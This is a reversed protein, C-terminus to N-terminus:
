RLIFNPKHKMIEDFSYRKIPDINTLNKILDSANKDIKDLKKYEISKPNLSNEFLYSGRSLIFYIIIGISYLDSKYNITKKKGTVYDSLNPSAITKSSCCKKKGTNYFLVCNFDIIKVSFINNNNFKIMINEPKLDNHIIGINNLCRVSNLISYIIHETIILLNNNDLNDNYLFDYVFDVLDIDLNEIIFFIYNDFNLLQYVKIIGNLQKKNCLNNSKYENIIKKYAIIENNIYEREQNNLKNYDVIKISVITDKKLIGNDTLINKTTRYKYINSYNGSSSILDIKKYGNNLLYHKYKSM